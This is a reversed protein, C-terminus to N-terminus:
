LKGDNKYLINQYLALYKGAIVEDTYNEQVKKMCADSLAQRDGHELVWQIGNALDNADKYNTVYGNIKHDIMEPIGGIEFGVCPTGCAMSEMITNPFNDELSPIVFLDACSYAAVMTSTDSIYGLSNVKFPLAQCLEESGNGMLVIEIKDTYYQKLISCAEILYAAGKRRDSLKAAAFLLLLKDKPLQFRERSDNKVLPKFVSTDIPNPISTFSAGELLSSKQAMETIWKSCGVFYIKSLGIQKKRNYTWNALDFFPNAVQLACQSCKSRYKECEDPYHCIATAPWLDHLTWVIPKGSDVLKGLDSVSLFGQNIWHFHVIDAEKILPHESIDKGTNAISVAFLNKRNLHNCLFIILREWYFRFRNLWTDDRILKDVQIGAQKLAKGLRGAAVAAGGTRESTNLIVIKM